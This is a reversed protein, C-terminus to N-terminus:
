VEKTHLGAVVRKCDNPTACDCTGKESGGPCTLKCEVESPVLSPFYRKYRLVERCLQDDLAVKDELVIDTVMLIFRWCKEGHPVEYVIEYVIETQSMYINRNTEFPELGGKLGLSLLTQNLARTIQRVNAEHDVKQM